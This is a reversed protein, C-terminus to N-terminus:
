AFKSIFGHHRLESRSNIHLPLFNRAYAGVHCSSCLIFMGTNKCQLGATEINSIANVRTIVPHPDPIVSIGAAGEAVRAWGVAGGVVGGVSVGIGVSVGVGVSEGVGKTGLAVMM